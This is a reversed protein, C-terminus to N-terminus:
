GQRFKVDYNLDEHYLGTNTPFVPNHSSLDVSLFNERSGYLIEALAAAIRKQAIKENGTGCCAITKSIRSIAEDQRGIKEVLASSITKFNGSDFQGLFDSCSGSSSQPMHNMVSGKHTDINAYFRSVLRNLEQNATFFIGLGLDTTVSTASSSSKLASRGNSNPMSCMATTSGTIPLNESIVAIVKESKSESVVLFSGPLEPMSTKPLDKSMCSHANLGQSGIPSAITNNRCSDTNQSREDLALIGMFAPLQSSAQYANTQHRGQSHHLHQYINDWKRQLAMVIVSLAM